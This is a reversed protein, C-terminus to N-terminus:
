VVGQARLDGCHLRLHLWSLFDHKRSRKRVERSNEIAEAVQNPRRFRHHQRGRIGSPNASRHQRKVRREIGTAKGARLEFLLADRSYVRAAGKALEVSRQEATRHHFGSAPSTTTKTQYILSASLNDVFM